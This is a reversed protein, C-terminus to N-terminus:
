QQLRKPNLNRQSKVKKYKYNKNISNKKIDKNSNNIKKEIKIPKNKNNHNNNPINRVSLFNNINENNIIKGKEYVKNKINKEKNQEPKKNINQVLSSIAINAPDTM